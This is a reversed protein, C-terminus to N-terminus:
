TFDSEPKREMCETRMFGFQEYLGHADRTRLLKKTSRLTPHELICRMLFKGVGQGRFRPDVIVDAIWAFVAYDTVVRAFGIQEGDSFVSFCLSHEICTAQAEKTRASAWYSTQLLRHVAEIDVASRDDVIKLEKMRWEM